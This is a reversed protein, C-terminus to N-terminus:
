IEESNTQIESNMTIVDAVSYSLFTHLIGVIGTVWIGITFLTFNSYLYPALNSRFYTSDIQAGVFFYGVILITGFLLFELGLIQSKKWFKHVVQWIGWILSMGGFFLGIELILGRIYLIWAIGFIFTFLLSIGRLRWKQTQTLSCDIAAIIKPPFNRNKIIRLLFIGGFLSLIVLEFNVMLYILSFDNQYNTDTFLAMISSIRNGNTLIEKSAYIIFLGMAFLVVNMTLQIKSHEMKLLGELNKIFPQISISQVDTQDLNKMKALKEMKKEKEGSDKQSVQSVQIYQNFRSSYQQISRRKKKYIQVAKGLSFVGILMVCGAVLFGFQPVILNNAVVWNAPISEWVGSGALYIINHEVKEVSVMPPNLWFPDQTYPKLSYYQIEFIFGSIDRFKNGAILSDYINSGRFGFDGGKIDNNLLTINRASEVSLGDLIENSEINLFTIEYFSPSLLLNGMLSFNTCDWFFVEHFQFVNNHCLVDSVHTMRVAQAKDFTPSGRNVYNDQCKIDISNKILIHDNWQDTFSSNSIDCLESNEILIGTTFGQIDLDVFHLDQSSNAYIGRINRESTARFNCKQIRIYNAHEIYVSSVNDQFNSYNLAPNYVLGPIYNYFKCNNLLVHATTNIFGFGYYTSNQEIVYNELIYATDWSLGDGSSAMSAIQDNSVFLQPAIYKFESNSIGQEEPAIDFVDEELLPKESHFPNRDSTTMGNLYLISCSFLFLIGLIRIDIGFFKQSHMHILPMSVM